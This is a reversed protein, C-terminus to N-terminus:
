ANAPEEDNNNHESAGGLAAGAASAQLATQLDRATVDLARGYRQAVREIAAAQHLAPLALADVAENAASAVCRLMDDDSDVQRVPLQLPLRRIMHLVADDMGWWRAVAAGMGEINAGLVAFAAASETMAGVESGQEAAVDSGAAPEPQMLRRVQRMDDAFHYQVVLRGLNQMVTVLAVVEADYGAPRLSQALRAARMAQEIARELDHAGAADLPGPWERLGLASRRVGDLGVMAIARRVTLVPGNGSVQSGRVSASNVSKLLEFSLAPDRLVVQALEETHEREMLALRAARAAAGPLAPLTGIQRVREILKAHADAGQHGEAELWGDLARALTRANRYRQRPVRDTARNTIARLADPLPRPLDWPLRLTDRGTPPLRAILQAVDPEGLAPAGALLGHMVIGLALVDREAASRARRLQDGVEAGDIPPPLPEADNAAVELGLVRLIGNDALTLLFPQLDHHAIGADHAFALGALAQGMWRAVDAAADGERPPSREALTPGIASDYAVYPWREQEGVEVAHALNPHALRAARRAQELWSALAAAHPPQQRPLVLVLEQASRPDFARWAMCRASRGLLERLEFRGLKRVAPAATTPADSVSM